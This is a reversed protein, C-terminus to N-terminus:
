GELRNKGYFSLSLPFTFNWKVTM